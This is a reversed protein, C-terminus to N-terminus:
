EEDEQAEQAEQIVKILEAKKTKKSIEVGLEEAMDRLESIKMTELGDGGIESEGGDDNRRNDGNGSRKGSKKVIVVAGDAVAALADKEEMDFEAGVAKDVTVKGEKIGLPKLAKVKVMSEGVKLSYYLSLSQWM